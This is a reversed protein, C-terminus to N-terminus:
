VGVPIPADIEVDAAIPITPPDQQSELSEIPEPGRKVQRVLYTIWVTLMVVYLGAFGVFSVIVSAASLHSVSEDTRLLGYVVYPQRGAEAVIWGGVIALVGVPTTWTLWRLFRRSVYLKRRLRLYLGVMTTGFMILASFWMTRFGYFLAWVNPRLNKPLANIGPVTANGSLDRVYLAGLHPIEIRVIDKGAAPDPIILLNYGNNTSNFNGDVTLVKAPQYKAMTV